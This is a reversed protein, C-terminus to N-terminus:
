ARRSRSMAIRRSSCAVGFPRVDCRSACPRSSSGLTGTATRAAGAEGGPSVRSTANSSGTGDSPGAVKSPVSSRTSQSSAGVEVDRPEIGARVQRNADELRRRQQAGADDIDGLEREEVVGVDRGVAQAPGDMELRHRQAHTRWEPRRDGHTATVARLTWSTRTSSRTVAFAVTLPPRSSVMVARPLCARPHRRTRRRPAPRCTRLAARRGTGASRGSAWPRDSAANWTTTATGHARSGCRM